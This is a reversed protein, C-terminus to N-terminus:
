RNLRLTVDSCITCIAVERHYITQASANAMERTNIALDLSGRGADTTKYLRKTTNKRM